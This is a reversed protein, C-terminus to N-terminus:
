NLEVALALLAMLCIIAAPVGVFLRKTYYGKTWTDVKLLGYALGILGLIGGAGFGVAAMREQRRFADWHARLERDVSPSFEVLTYLKMMPGVSREVTELYEDKAIERRIYDLTIGASRLSELRSDRIYPKFSEDLMVRYEMSNRDYSVGALRQIHEYTKFLLGIDAERQCESETSWEQTVLVERQVEGVRKPKSKVWAPRNVDSKPLANATGIPTSLKKDNWDEANKASASDHISEAVLPDHSESAFGSEDAEAAIVKVAAAAEAQLRRDVTSVEAEATEVCQLAEAADVECFRAANAAAFRALALWPITASEHGTIVIRPADFRDMLEHIDMREIRRQIEAMQHALEDQHHVINAEMAPQTHGHHIPPALEAHQSERVRSTGVFFALLPIILLVPWWRGSHTCCGPSSGKSQRRLSVMAFLALGAAAFVAVGVSSIGKVRIDQHGNGSWKDHTELHIVQAPGHWSHGLEAGPNGGRLIYTLILAAPTFLVLLLLGGAFMAIGPRHKIAAVVAVVALLSLLAILWIPTLFM